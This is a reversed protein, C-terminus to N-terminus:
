TPRTFGNSLLWENLQIDITTECNNIDFQNYNKGILDTPLRELSKEKLLCVSKGLAKLYGVEFAVNPNYKPDEIVEFVAIGLDCGHLYTLINYYVDEHYSLTDARLGCINNKMLVTRIAEFIKAHEVTEGFRMMIFATKKLGPFDTKYKKLSEQIPPIIKPVYREQFEPNNTLFKIEDIFHTLTAIGTDIKANLEVQSNQIKISEVTTIFFQSRSGDDDFINKVIVMANQLWRISQTYDCYGWQDRPIRITAEIHDHLLQIAKLHDTRLNLM